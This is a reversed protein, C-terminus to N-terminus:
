LYYSKPFFSNSNEVVQLSFKGNSDVTYGHLIDSNSRNNVDLANHNKYFDRIFLVYVSAKLLICANCIAHNVETNRNILSCIHTVYCNLM